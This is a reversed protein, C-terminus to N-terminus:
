RSSRSGLGRSSQVASDSRRVLNWCGADQALFEARADDDLRGWLHSVQFRLGDVAPRWDGTARAVGSVHRAVERRREAAHPGM